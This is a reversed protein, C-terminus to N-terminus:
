HETRACHLFWLPANEDVLRFGLTETFFPLAKMSSARMSTSMLLGAHGIRNVRRTPMTPASAYSRSTEATRIRAASAMAAATAPSGAPASVPMGHGFISRHLTHVRARDAVDFVIRIM